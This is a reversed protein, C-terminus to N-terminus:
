CIKGSRILAALRLTIDNALLLVCRKSDGSKDIEAIWADWPLTINPILGFGIGTSVADVEAQLFLSALM